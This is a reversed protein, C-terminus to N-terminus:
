PENVATKGFNDDLLHWGDWLRAPSKEPDEHSFLKWGYGRSLAAFGPSSEMLGNGLSCFVIINSPRNREKSGGMGRNARHQPILEPGTTGCHPCAMDRDLYKQFEKKNMKGRTM